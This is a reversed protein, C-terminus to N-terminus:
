RRRLLGKAMNEGDYRPESGNGAVFGVGFFYILVPLNKQKEQPLLGSM